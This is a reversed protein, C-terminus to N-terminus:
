GGHVKALVFEGCWTKSHTIPFRNHPRTTVEETENLSSYNSEVIPMVTPPYRQCTGEDDHDSDDPIRKWFKCCDCRTIKDM